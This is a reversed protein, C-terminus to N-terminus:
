LCSLLDALNKSNPDHPLTFGVAYTGHVVTRTSGWIRAERVERGGM